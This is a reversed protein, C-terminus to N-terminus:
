PILFNFVKPWSRLIAELKDPSLFYESLDEDSPSGNPSAPKLACPNYIYAEKLLPCWFAVTQLM